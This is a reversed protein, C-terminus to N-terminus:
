GAQDYIIELDKEIISRIHSNLSSETVLDVPIGLAEELEQDLVFWRMGISKRTKPDPLSVLIDIDSGSHVDSQRAFSGFIAIRRVGLPVLIEIIKRIILERSLGKPNQM